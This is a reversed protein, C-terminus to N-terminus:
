LEASIWCHPRENTDEAAHRLAVQQRHIDDKGSRLRKDPVLSASGSSIAAPMANRAELSALKMVPASNIMSPPAHMVQCAGSCMMAEVTDHLYTHWQLLHPNIGDTGM